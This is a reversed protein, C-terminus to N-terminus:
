AASTHNHRVTALGAIVDAASEYWQEPRALDPRLHTASIAV